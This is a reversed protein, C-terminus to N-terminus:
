SRRTPAGLKPKRGVLRRLAGLCLLGGGLAWHAAPVPIPAPTVVPPTMDQVTVAVLNNTVVAPTGGFLPNFTNVTFSAVGATIGTDPLNTVVVNSFNRQASYRITSGMDALLENYGSLLWSNTAEAVLLLDGDGHLFDHMAALESNTFTLSSNYFTTVILLDVGALAATTLPTTTSTTTVGPLNELHFDLSGLSATGRGFLVSTGGGLINDFVPWNASAGASTDSIVTLTGAEATGFALLGALALGAVPTLRNRRIM